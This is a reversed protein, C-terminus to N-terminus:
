DLLQAGPCTLHGLVHNAPPRAGGGNAGNFKCLKLLKVVGAVGDVFANWGESTV